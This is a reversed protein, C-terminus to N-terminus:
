ASVGALLSTVTMTPNTATVGTGHITWYMAPPSTLIDTLATLQAASFATEVGNVWWSGSSTSSSLQCWFALEIETNAVASVLTASAAATGSNGRVRGTVPASAIAKSFGIFDTYDTTFPLAAAAGGTSLGIRFGVGTASSVQIRCAMFAWLGSVISAAPVPAPHDLTTDFDSDSPYTILIGGGPTATPTAVAGGTAGGGTVTWDSALYINNHGGGGVIPGMNCELMQALINAPIRGGVQTTPFHLNKPVASASSSPYETAHVPTTTPM